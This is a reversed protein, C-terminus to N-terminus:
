AAKIKGSHNELSAKIHRSFDRKWSISVSSRLRAERPLKKDVSTEGGPPLLDVIDGQLRVLDVCKRNPGSLTEMAFVSLLSSSRKVLMGLVDAIGFM